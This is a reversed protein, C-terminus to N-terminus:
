AAADGKLIYKQLQMEAFPTEGGPSGWGSRTESHIERPHAALLPGM